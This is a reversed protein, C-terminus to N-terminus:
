LERQERCAATAARVLTGSALRDRLAARLSARCRCSCCSRPRAQRAHYLCPLGHPQHLGNTVVPHRIAGQQARQAYLSREHHRHRRSQQRSHRSSNYLQHQQAHLAPAHPSSSLPESKPKNHAHRRPKHIEPPQLPAPTGRCQRTVTGDSQPTSEKIPQTCSSANVAAAQQTRTIIITNGPSTVAALLRGAHPEIRCPGLSSAHSQM